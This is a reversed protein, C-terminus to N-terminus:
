ARVDELLDLAFGSAFVSEYSWSVKDNELRFLAKPKDWTVATGNSFTNRLPPEINVSIVGSGNATADEVIMVLHQNTGSGFGVLDGAKLTKAAEGAGADISLVVAGAAHSGSLTMSGRMTGVPEPRAFNWVALQNQAGRLKMVLAQYAGTLNENIMDLEISASWMPASAKVSQAGFASRYTVDNNALGFSFKSVYLGDPFTIVSM